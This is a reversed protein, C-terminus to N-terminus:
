LCDNQAWHRLNIKFSGGFPHPKTQYREPDMNIYVEGQTCLMERTWGHCNDCSQGEWVSAPLGEVPPFMPSAETMIQQISLGVITEAGFELPASFTIPDLAAFIQAELAGRATDAQLKRLKEEAEGRLSSEPFTALFQEFAQETNAEVALDWVQTELVDSSQANSQSAFSLFAAAVLSCYRGANPKPIGTM